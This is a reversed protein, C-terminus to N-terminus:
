LRVGRARAASRITALAEAEPLGIEASAALLADRLVDAGARSAFRFLNWSGRNLLENRHGPQAHLLTAVEGEIAARIYRDSVEGLEVPKREPAPLPVMMALLWEPAAPPAITWPEYGPVWRYAQGTDPHLSPPLMALLKDGRVEVRPSLRISRLTRGHPWAFYRHYGCHPGGTEAKPAVPLREGHQEELQRLEDHGTQDEVDVVLIGSGPGCVVAFNADPWRHLWRSIRGADASAQEHSFRGIKSRPHCPLIRWKLKAYDLPSTM